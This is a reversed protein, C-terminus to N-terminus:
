EVKATKATELVKFYIAKFMEGIEEGSKQDTTTPSSKSLKAITIEKAIDLAYKETATM